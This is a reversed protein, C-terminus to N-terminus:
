FRTAGGIAIFPAWFRPHHLSDDTAAIMELQALRLAEATSVKDNKRHKHLNSMLKETADTDVPWLSVVVLPVSKSLFPRAFSIMGEGKYYRDVGTQCASLLVVRARALNLKYVEQAELVGNSSQAGVAPEKTLLLKSQLPSREDVVSHVAFHIVDARQMEAKVRGERASDNILLCRSNYDYYGAVEEAEVAASPLNELEPFQARDFFPNGVSLIRENEVGAKKAAVESCIVFLTASPSVSPIYDEALFRGSDSSRLAAFPLYTLIKDPVIYLPKDKCLLDEVPRILSDFLESAQHNAQELETEFPRRILQLYNKVRENLESVRTESQRGVLGKESLVWILIKDDLVAYQVLQAGKPLREMLQPVKLPKLPKALPNLTIDSNRAGESIRAEGYVSDLLTRSRSEESYDFAKETNGMKSFAFDIAIDYVSQANDFFNNRNDGELITSRHKEILDLTKHLEEGITADDGAALYCILRNRHAELVGYQFDLGDYFELAENYFDLSKGFEKADRHLDGLALCSLAMMTKRVSQDTISNAADYSLTANVVAEAYRGVKGYILGLRTYAISILRPRGIDLARKLAEKQYDIAAAYLGSSLLATATITYHQAVQTPTLFGSDLLSLSAEICGLSKRYNGIYRYQEVLISVANFAGRTDGMRRALELSSLNHEIATSYNGLNYEAGSLVYLTRMRLWEHKKLEVSRLLPELIRVGPQTISAQLYSYGTWHAAYDAEWHDGLALFLDRSKSFPEVADHPRGNELCKRGLNLLERARALGRLNQTSSKYFRALGGIYLDGSKESELRGAYELAELKRTAQAGNGELSAQLYGDVLQEWIMMGSLSDRSQRITAWAQEHDGSEYASVFEQIIEQKTQAKKTPNEELSRLHQRAEDAWRSNSDRALYDRWDQEAQEILHMETHALARNFLPELLSGDLETAKNLHELSKAFAELGKGSDENSHEAKGKELLALGLDSHLRANKDDTSLALEFQEIAKDFEKRTLYLRGLAHRAAPTPRNSVEEILILEARRLSAEDVGGEDAGRTNRLPAYGLATVRGEV